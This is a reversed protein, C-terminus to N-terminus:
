GHTVPHASCLQTAAAATPAAPPPATPPSRWIQSLLHTLCLHFGRVHSPGATGSSPTGVTSSYCGQRCLTPLLLLQGTSHGALSVICKSSRLPAYLLLMELAGITRNADAVAAPLSAPLSASACSEAIRCCSYTQAVLPMVRCRYETPQTVRITFEPTHKDPCLNFTTSRRIVLAAM